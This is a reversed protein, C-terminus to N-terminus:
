SFLQNFLAVSMKTNLTSHGPFGFNITIIKLGIVTGFVNITLDATILILQMVLYEVTRGTKLFKKRQCCFRIFLYFASDIILGAFCNVNQKQHKRLGRYTQSLLKPCNEVASNIHFGFSVSIKQASINLLSNFPFVLILEETDFEMM